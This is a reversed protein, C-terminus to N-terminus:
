RDILHEPRVPVRVVPRGTANRIAAAVAPTSSLSPPEGVGKLGYPALPDPVEVLDVLVEPMDATTPILYDAFTPNMAVGQEIQLDENMALGIGQAIGGLIQGRVERPNLAKGVDQSTAVQVVRVTGLEIDVDVVARHAVFMWSVHVDGLGTTPDGAVTPPPRYTASAQIVEGRLTDGLDIRSLDLDADHVGLREALIHRLDRCALQVAGGSMWTQRSASSSGAYGALTSATAVRVDIGDLEHRAIQALASAIGQGVEAAASVIEAGAPTLRVTAECWEPTGEGYLMQKVGVAFGVGRRVGEGHTTRGTGGPLRYPHSSPAEDPMPLAACRDIVEIVPASEGVIQGSTPFRDGPRLANHRRLEVPDFRLESALSDMASEIGFCAQVAGFGRMAGSIPNNTYVSDGVIDVADCRYPGAAFYGATGIVPMSTSAYAGGDLLIRAWVYRLTGDRDAGLRYQPRAPHRKPHALFSERRRYTTKIPRQLLHAALCLHIQCTIDERGGFAGGIGGVEVRVLADDLGLAAAIQAQDMHLDQTAIRLTVGGDPDPLALGSEPGLFAQDQRGTYWTGETEVPAGVCPGGHAITLRRVLNGGPHLVPADASCALEPDVLTPLSEYRVDVLAAAAWAGRQSTAVVFAIPEGEYRVRESAFVPQDAVIHGILRAGPVDEATLVAAVDNRARARETDISVIRAHVQTSRVTAGFLMGPASADNSFEFSGDIKATVDPRDASLGLEFSSVRPPILQLTM